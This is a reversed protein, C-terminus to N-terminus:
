FEAVHQSIAGHADIHGGALSTGLKIILTGKTSGNGNMRLQCYNGYAEADGDNALSIVFSKPIDTCRKQLESRFVETLDASHIEAASSSQSPTIRAGHSQFSLRGLTRSFGVIRSNRVAGPWSVGVGDISRWSFPRGLREDLGKQSM